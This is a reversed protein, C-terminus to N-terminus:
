YENHMKALQGNEAKSPYAGKERTSIKNLNILEKAQLRTAPDDKDIKLLKLFYRESFGGLFAILIYAGLSDIKIGPLIQWSLLATSLVGIIGGIIPKIQFKLYSERYEILAVKTNRVQILGSIFGGLGGIIGFALVVVWGTILPFDSYNKVLYNKVLSINALNLDELNLVFPIILILVVLLLIGWFKIKDLREIQLGHSIQTQINEQNIKSVVENYSAKLYGSKTQTESVELGTALMQALAPHSNVLRNALIQAREKLVEVPLLDILYREALDLLNSVNLLNVNKKELGRRSTQLFEVIREATSLDFEQNLGFTNLSSRFDGELEMYKTRLTYVQISVYDKLNYATEKYELWRPTPWFESSLWAQQEESLVASLQMPNSSPTASVSM